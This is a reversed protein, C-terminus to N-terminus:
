SASQARKLFDNLAPVGIHASSHSHMVLETVKATQLLHAVTKLQALQPNHKSLVVIAQKCADIAGILDNSDAQFAQNEKMRLATAEGLAKQDAYMQEQTSKRKTKLEVIKAAAESMSAELDAAKATGVEIAKTKEERNTKCWCDLLEHVAKDDELEKELEAKMDPREKLNEVADTALAGEKSKLSVAQTSLVMM